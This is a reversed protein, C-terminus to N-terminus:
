LKQEKDVLIRRNVLYQFARRLCQIFLLFSGIPIVSLLIWKPAQLETAELYGIQYSHLTTKLSYWTVALWVIACLISTVINVMAQTRPNLRSLVLDVKVHGERRLLWTTGLFTIFALSYATFEFVWSSTQGLFYRTVVEYLVSVMIFALLVVALLALVDIIRDFINTAKKLLNM